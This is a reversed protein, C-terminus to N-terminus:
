RGTPKPSEQERKKLIQSLVNSFDRQANAQNESHQENLETNNLSKEMLSVMYFTFIFPDSNSIEITLDIYGSFTENLDINGSVILYIDEFLELSKSPKFNGKKNTSNAEFFAYANQKFEDSLEMKKVRNAALDILKIKRELASIKNPKCQEKLKQLMKSKHKNIDNIRTKRLEVGSLREAIKSIEMDTIYAFIDDGFDEEIIVKIIEPISDSNREVIQISGKVRHIDFDDNGTISISDNIAYLLHPSDVKISIEPKLRYYRITSNSNNIRLTITDKNINNYIDNKEPENTIETTNESFILYSDHYNDALFKITENPMRVIDGNKLSIEDYNFNFDENVRFYRINKLYNDSSHNEEISM